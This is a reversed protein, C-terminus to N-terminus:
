TTLQGREKPEYCQQVEVQGGTAVESGLVAGVPRYPLCWAHHPMVEDVERRVRISGDSQFLTFRSEDSWMVKKWQEVTWDKHEKAYQLREKGTAESILPKRLAVCCNLGM